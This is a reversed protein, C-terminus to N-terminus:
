RELNCDCLPSVDHILKRIFPIKEWVDDVWGWEVGRLGVLMKPKHTKHEPESVVSLNIITDNFTGHFENEIDKHDYFRAKRINPSTLM